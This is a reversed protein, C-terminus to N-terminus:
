LDVCMTDDDSSVPGIWWLKVNNEIEDKQKPSFIKEDDDDEILHPYHYQGSATALVPYSRHLSVGNVCDNNTKFKFCEKLKGESDLKTEDHLNWVRCFGDTGGSILYKDDPSMDFYIRQNTKVVREYTSLVSGPNRIDWCIIENDMRGGSFLRMGDNSFKLHTLGGHQGTLMCVFEDSNTYLGISKSYTGVAFLEPMLPNVSICSVLGKQGSVVKLNTTSCDRGPISIDFVKVANRFGCYIHVGDTSFGLSLASHVEDAYDYARYSARIKGTYADWLHVPSGASSSIFCCTVPEWSSMLPYWAFDNIRGGEKMTLSPQLESMCESPSWSSKSHLDKPLDFIRLNYDVCNTLLCTGDPSWKCGAFHKMHPADFNAIAIHNEFKYHNSYQVVENEDVKDCDMENSNNKVDLHSIESSQLDIESQDVDKPEDSVTNDEIKEGLSDNRIDNCDMESSQLDIESQDIEKPGDSVANDEIKEGLSDNRVNNCDMESNNNKIESCFTESSKSAIESQDMEKLEDDITSDEAIDEIKEGLSDNKVKNCDIESNNDKVDSYFTESSQLPIESQDVNKLEDSVANDDAMDEKNEEFSDNKGLSDVLPLSDLEAM